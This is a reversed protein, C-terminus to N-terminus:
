TFEVKNDKGDEAATVAEPENDKSVYIKVFEREDGWSYNRIPVEPRDSIFAEESSLVSRAMSPKMELTPVASESLKAPEGGSVIRQEETLEGKRAHAHYYSSDGKTYISNQVADDPVEGSDDPMLNGTGMHGHVGVTIIAGNKVDQQALTVDGGM